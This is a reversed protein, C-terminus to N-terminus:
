CREWTTALAGVAETGRVAAVPSGLVTSPLPLIPPTALTGVAETGRVVAVPGGPVTSSSPLSVSYSMALTPHHTPQTLLFSDTFLIYEYSGM